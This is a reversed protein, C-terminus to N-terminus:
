PAKNGLQDEGFFATVEGQKNLRVIFPRPYKKLLRGIRPRAKIFAEAMQPGTWDGRTLQFVALNCAVIAAKEHPRYRTRYDKSLLIYGKEGVMAFLEPDSLGTPIDIGQIVVSFGNESLSKAM